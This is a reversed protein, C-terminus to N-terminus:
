WRRLVGMERLWWRKASVIRKGMQSVWSNNVKLISMLMNKKQIVALRKDTWEELSINMNM